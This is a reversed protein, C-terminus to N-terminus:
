KQENRAIAMWVMLEWASLIGNLLAALTAIVLAGFAIAWELLFAAGAVLLTLYTFAPVIVGTMWDSLEMDDNKEKAARMHGYIIRLWGLRFLGVLFLLAGLLTPGMTPITVLCATLLVQVFHNLTPDIFARASAATSANVLSAGFTVAVFMLGILTAAAAGVLLYFNQWTAAAAGYAGLPTM